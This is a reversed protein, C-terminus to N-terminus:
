MRSALQEDSAGRHRWIPHSAPYRWELVGGHGSCTGSRTHSASFWGDNCMATKGNPWAPSFAHHIPPSVLALGLLAVVVGAVKRTGRGVRLLIHRGVVIVINRNGIVKVNQRPEPPNIVDM